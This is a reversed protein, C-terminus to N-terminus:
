EKLYNILDESLRQLKKAIRSYIFEVLYMHASLEKDVAM